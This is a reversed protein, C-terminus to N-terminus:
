SNVADDIAGAFNFDPDAREIISRGIQDGSVFKPQIAALSPQSRNFSSFLM